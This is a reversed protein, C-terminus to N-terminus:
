SLKLHGKKGRSGLYGLCTHWVKGPWVLKVGRAWQVYCRLLTCPLQLCDDLSTSKRSLQHLEFMILRQQFSGVQIMTSLNCSLM